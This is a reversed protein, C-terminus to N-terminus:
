AFVMNKKIMPILPNVMMALSPIFRRVFNIRGHFNQLGKKHSPLSLSLIAKKRELDITLGDKSVIHGLLKGKNTAFVCKRPNLSVGYERYRIYVQRLHGFHEAVDRSYVIIDDLYVLM